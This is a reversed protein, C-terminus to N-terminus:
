EKTTGYVSVTGATTVTLQLRAYATNVNDLHVVINGDSVGGDMGSITTSETFWTSNSLNRHVEPDNSTQLSMAAVPNGEWVVQLSMGTSDGIYLHKSLNEGLGLTQRSILTKNTNRKTM